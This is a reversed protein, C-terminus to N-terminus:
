LYRAATALPDEPPPMDARACRVVAIGRPEQGALHIETLVFENTAGSGQGQQAVVGLRDLRTPTHTVRIHQEPHNLVEIVQALYDEVTALSSRTAGLNSQTEELEADVAALEEAHAEPPDLLAELSAARSALRRRRTALFAKRDALRLGRKQIGEIRELAVNILRQLVRAGVAYRLGAHDAAPLILRQDTFSVQTQAVDQRLLGGDLAMGLVTREARRFVLIAWAEDVAVRSADVFFERLAESRGLTTTVDDRQAFVANVLPDTGWAGPALRRPAPLDGTLARLFILSRRVAPELVHPYGAALRLRPDLSDAVLAMAEPLLAALPPPFPESAAPEAARFFRALFEFFVM